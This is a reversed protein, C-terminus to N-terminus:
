EEVQKLYVGHVKDACRQLGFEEPFASERSGRGKKIKSAKLIGEAIADSNEVPVTSVLDTRAAIERVGPLDTAVVPLNAALAELVAGPLGEWRSSLVFCDSAKLLRPVDGRVGLFHVNGAIDLTKAKAEMEARLVGDGVLLLHIKPM